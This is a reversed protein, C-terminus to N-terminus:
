VRTQLRKIATSEHREYVSLLLLYTAQNIGGEGEQETTSSSNFM